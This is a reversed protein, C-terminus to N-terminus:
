IKLTLQCVDATGRSNLSIAGIIKRRLHLASKRDVPTVEVRTEHLSSCSYGLLQLFPNNM